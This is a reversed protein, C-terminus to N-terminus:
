LQEGDEFSNALYPGKGFVVDAGKASEPGTYRPDYPAFGKDRNKQAFAANARQQRKERRAQLETAWTAKTFGRRRAAQQRCASNCYNGAGTPAFILPERCWKCVPQPQSQSM